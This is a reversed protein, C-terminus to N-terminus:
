GREEKCVVVAIKMGTEDRLHKGMNVHKMMRPTVICFIFQKTWMDKEADQKTWMDKEADQEKMYEGDLTFVWNRWGYLAGCKVTTYTRIQMIHVCSALCAFM